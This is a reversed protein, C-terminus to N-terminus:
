PLTSRMAGGILTVSSSIALAISISVAAASSIAPASAHGREDRVAGDDARGTRVRGVHQDVALADDGEDLRRRGHEAGVERRGGVRDDVRRPLVDDGAPDVAVGVHLQREAARERRSVNSVPVRAAANPPVVVIM